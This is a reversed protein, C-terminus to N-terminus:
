ITLNLYFSLIEKGFFLATLSGAALFPGFPISQGFHKKGAFILFLSVLAGLLFSLMVALLGSRFGLVLGLFFGLKVDGGGMGKGKTIIILSLFFGGILGGTLFSWLLPIYEVKFVATIILYFIAIYISPIILRDPILMKKIDTLFLSVLITIFFTKFIIDSPNQWFLFGVLIGMVAEVLLYDVGIRDGCYRCRGRLLIYSVVPILDHWNLKKKCNQCFSRGFFSGNNLSRDALAKSLSGLATGLIFGFIPLIM